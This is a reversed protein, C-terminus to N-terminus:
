RQEAATEKVQELSEAASDRLEELHEQGSHQAADAAGAAADQLVAQAHAVAEHGTHELQERVESAIPALHEEEIRTEPVFLGAVFGVAVAGIALGLPNEQAIGVAQQAGGRLQEGSPAVDGVHSVGSSVGASVRSVGLGLTSRVRGVRHRVRERTRAPVNSRYALADATEGMQDRTAAIQARIAQPDEGM